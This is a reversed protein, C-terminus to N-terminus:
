GAGKAPSFGRPPLTKRQLWNHEAYHAKGDVAHLTYAHRSQASRNSASYHPLMGNFMVLAGSRVEVPVAENLSPWPATDVTHLRASGDRAIFRQRLPSRHGGSQVWLCGNTRDADELAFWFATVTPPDTDFFAADQHWDVEGGIHPQKFIYMSQYILADCLGIQEAIAGLREDHSFREFESDLDHMAHGIKNISREKSVRLEGREDFAEAEFFCRVAEGSEMFYADSRRSDNATTFISAARSPDFADVIEGARARLAAVEAPSKFDELVLYGEREYAELQERSLV